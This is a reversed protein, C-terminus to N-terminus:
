IKRTELIKRNTKGKEKKDRITLPSIHFDPFPPIDFPGAIRNQQIEQQIKNHVIQKNANVSKSNTPLYSVSNSTNELSFGYKFGNTLYEIISQDYKATQLHHQLKDPNIPTPAM